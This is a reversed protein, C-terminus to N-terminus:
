VRSEPPSSSSTEILLRGDFRPRVNFKCSAISFLTREVPNLLGQAFAERYSSRLLNFLIDPTTKKLIRADCCRTRRRERGGGCGFSEGDRDTRRCSFGRLSRGILITGILGGVRSHGRGGDSFGGHAQNGDTLYRFARQRRVRDFDGQRQLHWRVLPSETPGLAKATAYGRRFERAKTGAAATSTCPGARSSFITPVRERPVTGHTGARHCGGEGRRDRAGLERAAAGYKPALSKCHGCWPAYFEILAGNTRTPENLHLSDFTSANIVAVSDEAGYVEGNLMVTSVYGGDEPTSAPSGPSVAAAALAVSFWLAARRMM